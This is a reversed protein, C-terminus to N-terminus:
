KGFLAMQSALSLVWEAPLLLVFILTLIRQPLKALKRARFISIATGVFTIFFLLYFYYPSLWGGYDLM